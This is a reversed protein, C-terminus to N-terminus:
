PFNRFLCLFIKDCRPFSTFFYALCFCGGAPNRLCLLLQILDLPAHSLVVTFGDAFDAIKRGNLQLMAVIAGGLSIM